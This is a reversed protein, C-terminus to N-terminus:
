NELTKVSDIDLRKGFTKEQKANLKISAPM